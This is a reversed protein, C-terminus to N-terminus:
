SANARGRGGCRSWCSGWQRQACLSQDAESIIGEGARRTGGSPHVTTSQGTIARPPATSIAVRQRKWGRESGRVRECPAIRLQCCSRLSRHHDSRSGTMAMSGAPPTTPPYSEPAGCPCTQPRIAAWAGRGRGRPRVRREHHGRASRATRRSPRSRRRGPM